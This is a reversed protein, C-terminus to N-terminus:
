RTVLMDTVYYNNHQLSLLRYVSYRLVLSTLDGLQSFYCLYLMTFVM